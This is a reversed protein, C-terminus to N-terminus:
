HTYPYNKLENPFFQRLTLLMSQFPSHMMFDGTIKDSWNGNDLQLLVSIYHKNDPYLVLLWQNCIIGYLKEFNIKEMGKKTIELQLNDANVHFLQKGYELAKERTLFQNPLMGSELMFCRAGLTLLKHNLADLLSEGDMTQSKLHLFSLITPAIDLLSVRTSIVQKTNTMKGHDYRIMGLVSHFQAPSLLDSGHGASKNADTSTKEAFYQLLPSSAKEQYRESDIIRSGNKYMVEGHDSLLVLLANNLAHNKQLYHLLVGAQKDAEHVAQRYLKEKHNVDFADNLDQPKTTAWAYPWHPLTYHVALFLPKDVQLDQLSAKIAKNFTAPYYSFASARNIYHYPLLWHSFSFNILLNSLPFDYFSSTLIENVGIRPGIIKQFGLQNDMNNFRRDDTAFYTQYGTKQLRWAISDQFHIQKSATLNERAQHHIPYQGTLISIWAPYTRALPSIVETFHTSNQLYYWFNPTIEPSLTEPSLSDIGIIIINPKTNTFVPMKKFYSPLFALCAILSISLGYRWYNRASQIVAYLTLTLLIFGSLLALVLLLYTSFFISFLRSFQSLPFFYANLSFLCVVSLIFIGSQVRRKATLSKNKSIYCAIFTQILSLLVYLLIQLFILAILEAYVKWPLKIAGIFSSSEMFSFFFQWVLLVLNGLLFYTFATKHQKSHIM